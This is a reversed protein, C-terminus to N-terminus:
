KSPPINLQCDNKQMQSESEENKIEGDIQEVVLPDMKMITTHIEEIHQYFVHFIEVKKWCERCVDGYM